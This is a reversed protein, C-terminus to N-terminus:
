ALRWVASYCLYNFGVKKREGTSECILRVDDQLRQCYPVRRSVMRDSNQAKEWTYISDVRWILGHELRGFYVFRTGLRVQEKKFFVGMPDEDQWSDARVGRRPNPHLIALNSSTATRAM